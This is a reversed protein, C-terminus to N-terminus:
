LPWNVCADTYQTIMPKPSPKNSIRYGSMVQALTSKNDMSKLKHAINKHKAVFNMAYGLSLHAQKM